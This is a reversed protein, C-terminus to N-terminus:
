LFISRPWCVVFQWFVIHYQKEYTTAPLFGIAGMRGTEEILSGCYAFDTDSRLANVRITTETLSHMAHHTFEAIRKLRDEEESTIVTGNQHAPFPLEHRERAIREFSLFEIALDTGIRSQMSAALMSLSRVESLAEQLGLESAAAGLIRGKAM